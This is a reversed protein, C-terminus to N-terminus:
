SLLIKNQRVIKFLREREQPTKYMIRQREKNMEELTKRIFELKDLIESWDSNNKRRKM